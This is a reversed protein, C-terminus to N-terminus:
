RKGQPVLEFLCVRDEAELLLSLLFTVENDWIRAGRAEGKCRDEGDGAQQTTQNRSGRLRGSRREGWRPIRAAVTVRSNRARVYQFHPKGCRGRCASCIM